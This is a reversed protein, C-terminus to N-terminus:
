TLGNCAVPTDLHVARCRTPPAFAGEYSGNLFISVTQGVGIVNTSDAQSIRIENEIGRTNFVSWASAPLSSINVSVNFPMDFAAEWGRIVDPGLNKIDIRANYGTGWDATKVFNFSVSSSGHFAQGIQSLSEDPFSDQGSGCAATALLLLSSFTVHRNM